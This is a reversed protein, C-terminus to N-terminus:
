AVNTSMFVRKGKFPLKGGELLKDAPDRMMDFFLKGLGGIEIGNFVELFQQVITDVRTTYNSLSNIKYHAYVEFVMAVIGVTRNKAIMNLPSIRIICSQEMWADPIGGDLFVRFTSGDEQGTYILAAKEAASLNSLNWADPTNYKLLKWILENETMLYSICNYSFNAYETFQNYAGVGIPSTPIVM